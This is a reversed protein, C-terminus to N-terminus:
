IARNRLLNFAQLNCFKWPRTKRKGVDPLNRKGHGLTKVAPDLRDHGFRRNKFGRKWIHTWIYTYCVYIANSDSVPQVLVAKM